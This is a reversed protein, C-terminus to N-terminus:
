CVATHIFAFLLQLSPLGLMQQLEDLPTTSFRLFTFSIPHLDAIHNFLRSNLEAISHIAMCRYICYRDTLNVTINRRTTNFSNSAFCSYGAVALSSLGFGNVTTLVSVNSSQNTSYLMGNAEVAIEHGRVVTGAVTFSM